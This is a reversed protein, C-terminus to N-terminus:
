ESEEKKAATSLALKPLQLYDVKGSSLYPIEDVIFCQCYSTHINLFQGVLKQCSAPSQEDKMSTKLLYCHLSDDSGCCFATLKITSFFLEVEDLNIRQGVIKIFRKLRGIIQYDGDTDCTALDGTHLTLNQAPLSLEANNKAVGMMVNNGSYCLEGIPSSFDNSNEGDSSEFASLWLEGGEIAQGISYPKKQVKEPSLISIRATAETQGYMVFFLKNKSLCWDNIQRVQEPLLKGGAVAFFRLSDLSLRKLNLKLLM